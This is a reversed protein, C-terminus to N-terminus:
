SVLRAVLPIRRLEPFTSLPDIARRAFRLVGLSLLAAVALSVLAPPTFREEIFALGGLAVIVLGYVRLVPGAALRVGLDPRSLRLHNLVNQVVLATTTGIAAGIAAYRPILLLSMGVAALAAAVDAVVVARVKGHVRLTAANFGLAANVYFGISLIVLLTSALAYRPGFLWLTLPEALASTIAFVPFTLVAIWLSTKWYLDNVGALDGRAFMRAAHPVFLFGFAEFVVMNLGAVPLVARYEAVSAVPHFYELMLVALATRWIVQLESSLLPVSQGFVEAFPFVLKRLTLGQLLGSARWARWLVVAYLTVGVVSGAVYGVALMRADGSGLVVLLIALLKLSPSVIQRKLLIARASGFVAVLQQLLNDLADLPAMVILTLLLTLSEPAARVVHGLEVSFAHVLGVLLLGLGGITGVALTISGVARAHDHRALYIPVLRPIGKGLGLLVLSATMSVVGLAYAFAGYGDKSLYRVTLVQVAFNLFVALFRGVLLLGSGRFHRQADVASADSDEDGGPAPTARALPADLARSPAAL